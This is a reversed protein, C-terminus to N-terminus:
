PPCSGFFGNTTGNTTGSAPNPATASAGGNRAAIFAAAATGDISSGAYGPLGVKVDFRNRIRLDSAGNGGSGTVSNALAGAGGLTLCVRGTDPLPGTGATLLIGQSGFSGPNAVTNGTVTTQVYPNASGFAGYNLNIGENNYQYLHNNTISVNATGADGFIFAIDSGGFSGSNATGPVGITNNNITGSYNHNTGAGTGAGIAIASAKAGQMTNDSINFTFTDVQNAGGGGLTIGGGLSNTNGNSLTNGHGAGGFVLDSSITGHLDIQFLDGRAATFTSDQVTVNLTGGTGQFVLADNGTTDTQAFSCFTFTVRNLTQSGNNFVMFTNNAGGSFNSHDVTASGSLGQFNVSGEGLGGYRNAGTGNVGNITSYTMTFGNVNTGALAYNSFDHLNMHNLSVNKANKLYVGVGLTANEVPSAEAGTLSQITGGSGDNSTSGATGTVTFSGTAASSNNWIVGNSGGSASISLFNFTGDSNVLNVATSSGTSMSIGNVTLGTASSASLTGSLTPTNAVAGAVSLIGGVSLNVGAGILSQNALLAYAGTTSGTGKAVYIYDGSGTVGSGPMTKFPTNSRGDNTSSGTANDIYWVKNNLTFTLSATTSAAGTSGAGTNSSATYTCTASTASVNPTFIFKGTSDVTTITGGSTCSAGTVTPTAPTAGVLLTSGSSVAPTTPAGAVSSIFFQTNGVGTYGQSALNPGVSVTIVKTGTCAGADTATVTVPFTGTVNPTGTIAGTGSNISLNTPLGSASWAITGNGGSQSYTSNAAVNYTFSLSASGTVTITPCTINLTFAQTADPSITNAAKISQAYPSSDQTHAAPTGNITATGNGNDAFSVGTPLTGTRTLAPTPYGTTTVTFSQGTKGPAFTVANASTISPPEVVTIVFTQTASTDVGSNATGGNDHIAITITSTGTANTAPTFTLTGTASVAPAASFLAANTNGSVIFNLTQGSEDAPGASLNTAWGAVSAAGSNKLVQQDTGKTFSPVDNVATVTITFTQAGSTDVGGNATGGDDHIQITVTATGNANAAPTYTLVGAASVAPQVSFLGNNNNSVIFDVTQGSEDAPGKSISTAWGTVSAAGSDEIVTQNAGKTFSPADNVANVTISITVTASDASGDNVKYTFSDSGNYNGSPSYSLSKTCNSPTGTITTTGPTCTMTGTNGPLITGHSPGSVVTYTLAASDIDTGTIVISVPNDENTTVTQAAAIPADNVASVAITFTQSASTDVGGNATGGDDHLQVTVTASGFADPAPTFTLAGGASIAPQVSFLSNNNNSVIFNVAQGSEGPGASIASAWGAVTAAGSDEAVTQDAGKTFSPADNVATVTITFTQSASTDAGGNATGGNDHVQVTVTAVGFANAAPTYTLKGSADISPQTSFLSNNNNSVIFNVSQGSEDAPGASIATAWGNVTAAGSDELVTQDAGKTFSPADNVATVTISVTAASASDVTGDNVKFTFSDSGNYDANPTYTISKTCASPTGACTMAGTSLSLNGHSPASVVTFTLNNGDPDAAGLTIPLATDENTSVSQGTPTPAANVVNVTIAITVTASDLSGDNVKYTFSDSGTYGTTPTYTTAATCSSPTGSCTMAGSSSNLGGHSPGSVVTFTLANGDLDAGALTLPLATNQDTAVTQATATPARNPFVNVVVTDPASDIGGDNVILQLVYTGGVDGTFSPNSVSASSLAASSGAPRALMSWHYSLPSADPDFSSGGNLNVTSGLVIGSQDPGANALPSSNVTSITVTAPASARVSDSVILQAVYTGAADATFSPTATTPNSLTATSGAPRSLLSWQYTLTQGFPDTSTAGTLNVTAGQTARQQVGANAVPAACCTLTTVQVTSTSSATGDSVTLQVVYTGAVDAVFTPSVTSASSLAAASGAPVSSLAWSYTLADGNVDTSGSGDLQVTAGLSVKQDPGSNAVPATNATTITVISPNSAFGSDYAVLQVVYTGAVDALFTPKVAGVNSLVATAGAPKSLVSWSYTLPNGASDTSGSGDLQVTRPISITQNPGANAVPFVATTSVVVYAPPSSAGGNSVVLQVRYTGAVDPVFTPRATTAGTLIAVSSAPKTSFSWAYTLAAGNPDSSGTGDLTVTTSVAVYQPSGANATPVSASSFAYVLSAPDFAVTRNQRIKFTNTSQVTGGAPVNGFTLYGDIVITNPSISQVTATVGNYAPGASHASVNYTYEYQTLTVRTSSVLTLNVASLQAHALSSTGAAIALMAAFRVAASKNM